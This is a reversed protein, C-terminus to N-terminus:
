MRNVSQHLTYVCNFISASNRYLQGSIFQIIKFIFISYITCKKDKLIYQLYGNILYKYDHEILKWIIIRVIEAVFLFNDFLHKEFQM